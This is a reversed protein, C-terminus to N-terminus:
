PIDDDSVSENSVVYESMWDTHSSTASLRELPRMHQRTSREDVPSPMIISLLTAFEKEIDADRLIGYVDQSIGRASLSYRNCSDMAFRADNAEKKLKELTEKQQKSQRRYSELTKVAADWADCLKGFEGDVPPESTTYRIKSNNGKYHSENGLEMLIALYPLPQQRDRPVGIPRIAAEAKQDGAVKFKVQGVGGSLRSPDFESDPDVSGFYLPILFDISEQSFTFQLTAGRAWLNALLQRRTYLDAPGRLSASVM